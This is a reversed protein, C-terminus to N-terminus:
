LRSLVLRVFGVVLIMVIVMGRVVYISYIHHLVLCPM